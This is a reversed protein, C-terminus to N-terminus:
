EIKTVSLERTLDRVMLDSVELKKKIIKLIKFNENNDKGGDADGAQQLDSKVLELDADKYNDITSKSSSFVAQLQNAKKLLKNLEDVYLTEKKSMDADETRNQSDMVVQMNGSLRKVSKNIKKQKAKVDHLRKKTKTMADAQKEKMLLVTNLTTIQNMYELKLSMARKNLSGIMKYLEVLSLSVCENVKQLVTLSEVSNEDM